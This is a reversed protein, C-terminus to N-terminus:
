RPLSRLAFFGIRSNLRGRSGRSVWNQPLGPRSAVLSCRRCPPALAPAMAPTKDPGSIRAHRNLSAAGNALSDTMGPRLCSQSEWHTRTMPMALVPLLVNTRQSPWSPARRSGQAGLKPPGAPLHRRAGLPAGLCGLEARTHRRARDAGVPRSRPHREVTRANTQRPRHPATVVVSRTRARRGPAQTDQATRDIAFAQAEHAIALGLGGSTTAMSAARARCKAM